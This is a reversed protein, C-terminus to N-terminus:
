RRIANSASSLSGDLALDFAGDRTFMTQKGDSMVFFGDGQIAM